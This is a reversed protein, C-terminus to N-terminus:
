SKKINSTTTRTAMKKTRTRPKDDEKKEKDEYAVKITSEKAEKMLDDLNWEDNEKGFSISVKKEEGPIPDETGSWCKECVSTVTGIEPDFSAVRCDNCVQRGCEICNDIDTSSVENKCRDCVVKNVEVPIASIPASKKSYSSFDTYGSSLDREVVPSKAPISKPQEISCIDIKSESYLKCDKIQIGVNLNEMAYSFHKCVVKHLCNNCQM